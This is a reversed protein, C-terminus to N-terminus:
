RVEGPLVLRVRWRGGPLAGFELVGGHQLAEFAALRLGMGARTAGGAAAAPAGDNRVELSWATGAEAVEVDVRRPHAHKRVNRLAEALVSQALAEGGDPVVAGEQWTVTVPLRPRHEPLRDLEQRLTSASRRPPRALPRELASRLDAVAGDLERACRAREAEALTGGASLVLSVGFLRQLVREHIERALDLRDSLRRAREQQRVAIRTSAALGIVKGSVYLLDRETESLEFPRGGRDALFVGYWVGGASLPTCSLSTLALARAFAAPVAEEVGETVEVVRDEELARRAIPTNEVTAHVAALDDYDGGHVGVLVVDHHGADYLWIGGRDMRIFRCVAACLRGYYERSPAETEIEGLLQVALDLAQELPVVERPPSTAM